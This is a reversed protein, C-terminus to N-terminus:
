ADFVDAAEFKPWDGHEHVLKNDEGLYGMKRFMEQLIRLVVSWQYPGPQGNHDKPGADKCRQCTAADMPGEWFKAPLTNLYDFLEILELAGYKKSLHSLYHKKLRANEAERLPDAKILILDEDDDDDDLEIPDPAPQTKFLTMAMTPAAAQQTQQQISPAPSSAAPTMTAPASQIPRAPLLPPRAIPAPPPVLESNNDARPALPLLSPAAPRPVPATFPYFESDPLHKRRAPKTAPTKKKPAPTTSSAVSSAQSPKPPQTRRPCRSDPDPSTFSLGPRPQLRRTLQNTSRAPTPRDNETLRNASKAKNAPPLGSPTQRALERPGHDSKRSKKAVKSPPSSSPSSNAETPEGPQATRRSPEDRQRRRSALDAEDDIMRGQRQANTTRALTMGGAVPQRRSPTAPGRREEDNKPLRYDECNFVPDDEGLHEWFYYNPARVWDNLQGLVDKKNLKRFNNPLRTKNTVSLLDRTNEVATFRYNRWEPVELKAGKWFPDVPVTGIEKILHGLRMEDWEKEWIKPYRGEKNDLIMMTIIAEPGGFDPIRRDEREGEVKDKWHKKGKMWKVLDAQAKSFDQWAKHRAKEVSAKSRSLERYIKRADLHRPLGAPGCCNKAYENLRQLWVDGAIRDQPIGISRPIGQGPRSM